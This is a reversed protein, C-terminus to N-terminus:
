TVLGEWAIVNLAPQTVKLSMDRDKLIISLMLVDLNIYIGCYNLSFRYFQCVSENVQM